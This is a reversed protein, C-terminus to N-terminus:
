YKALHYIPAKQGNENRVSQPNVSNVNYIWNMASYFFRALVTPPPKDLVDRYTSGVYADQGSTSLLVQQNGYAISYPQNNPNNWLAGSMPLQKYVDNHAAGFLSGIRGAFLDM